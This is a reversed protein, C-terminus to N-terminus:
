RSSVKSSKEVYKELDGFREWIGKSFAMLIQRLGKLKEETNHEFRMQHLILQDMRKVVGTDAMDQVVSHKSSHRAGVM